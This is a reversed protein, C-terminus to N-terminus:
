PSVHARLVEVGSPLTVSESQEATVFVDFDKSTTVVNLEGKLSNNVGIAGEKVAAGGSPRVWVIYVNESPTLRTPDALNNVKINMNINGNAKDKQAQVTGSAAPVSADATMRYKKGSSWPWWLVTLLSVVVFLSKM